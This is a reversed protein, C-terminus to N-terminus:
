SAEWDRSTPTVVRLRPMGTPNGIDVGRMPFGFALPVEQDTLELAMVIRRQVRESFFKSGREIRSITERSVGVLAALDSQTLGQQKRFESLKPQFHTATM